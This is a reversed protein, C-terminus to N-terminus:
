PQRDGEGGLHHSIAAALEPRAGDYGLAWIGAGRLGLAPVLDVKAGLSRADDYYLERRTIPCTQCLRSTYTTWASAELRDYRYGHTAAIAVAAAYIVPVSHGDRGSDPRTLARRSGDVTSWVRGYFPLGLIIHDPSTQSLYAVLTSRLDDTQDPPPPTPSPSPESGPLQLPAASPGAEPSAPPPSVAEPGLAPFSATATPEPEATPEPARDLPAVAGAVPSGQGRYEYGMLFVADAAGPATLAALDFGALWKQRTAAFTLQYGPARADLAARLDRVFTVYDDRQDAPIPEFDLDAGDAGRDRVAAAIQGALRDRRAPDSLLRRTTEEARPGWSFRQITLVVRTGEAHAREILSTMAASTWARWRSNPRGTSRRTLLRGEASAEIGFFAITSLLSIHPDVQADGVSWYPLYGFVDAALARPPGATAPGVGGLGVVTPVGSTGSAAAHRSSLEEGSRRGAPLPVPLAGDVLHRDGPRPRYGVRVRGGPRLGLAGLSGGARASLAGARTVGSSSLASAMAVADGTPLLAVLLALPLSAARILAM